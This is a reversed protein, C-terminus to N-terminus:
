HPGTVPAEVEDLTPQPPGGEVGTPLDSCGAGLAGIALIAFFFRVLKM